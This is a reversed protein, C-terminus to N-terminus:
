EGCLSARYGGIGIPYDGIGLGWIGWLGSGLGTPPHGAGQM